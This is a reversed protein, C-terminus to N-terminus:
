SAAPAGQPSVNAVFTLPGSWPGIGRYNRGRVVVYLTVGLPLNPVKIKPYFSIDKFYFNNPGTIEAEYVKVDPLRKFYMMVTGEGLNEVWDMEGMEPSVIPTPMKNLEFGCLVLINVDGQAISNVSIVQQSVLVNLEKRLAERAAANRYDKMLAEGVWIALQDLKAVIIAPAPSVANFGPALLKTQIERVRPIFDSNKLGYMGFICRRKIM